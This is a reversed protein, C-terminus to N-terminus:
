VGVEASVIVVAGSADAEEEVPLEVTVVVSVVIVLYSVVVVDVGLRCLEKIVVSAVERSALLIVGVLVMVMGSGVEVFVRICLVSIISGMGVSVVVSIDDVKDVDRTVDVSPLSIVVVGSTVM